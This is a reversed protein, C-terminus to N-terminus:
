IICDKGYTRDKYCFEDDDVVLFYDYFFIFSCYNINCCIGIILFYYFFSQRVM